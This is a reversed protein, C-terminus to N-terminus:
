PVWLAGRRHVPGSCSTGLGGGSHVSTLEGRVECMMTPDSPSRWPRVGGGRKQTWNRENDHLKRSYNTLIIPQHGWGPPQRGDDPFDHIRWQFPRYFIVSIMMSRSHRFDCKLLWILGLKSFKAIQTKKNTQRSLFVSKLWM